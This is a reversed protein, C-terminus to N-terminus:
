AADHAAAAPADADAPEAPTTAPAPGELVEAEPLPAVAFRSWREAVAAPILARVRVGEATDERDVDGAVEHLEALMAGESFPLLLEM